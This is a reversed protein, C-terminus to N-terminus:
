LALAGLLFTYMREAEDVQDTLGKGQGHGEAEQLHMLIPMTGAQAHQLRAAFKASHLWTVRTDQEASTILTAPYTVGDLVQHYPSYAWLYPADKADDATGYEDVWLEAPPWRHFRVMDFLGVAAYSARFLHPVQTIMAGMLLGGNSGGAIALRQPTTYRQAVLFRMAYEMDRFVQHKNERRGAQHWAEGLEGGGRLNAVALVGGHEMWYVYRRSFGPTLSINFGGYGTLLVQASGNAVFGKPLVVFMPVPTGDYSRYTVQTVKYGALKLDSKAAAVTAARGPLRRTSQQLIVPPTLYNSWAFVVQDGDPEADTGGVSGLPPVALAGVAAGKANRFVLSSVARNLEETVMGRKVPLMAVLTQDGQAVLTHWHEKAPQDPHISVVRGRPADLNTLVVVRGGRMFAWEFTAAHGVALPTVKRSALDMLYLDSASWGRSVTIVLAKGDDSLSSGPWFTKDLDKGFLLPDAAPDTGLVHLYLRPSYREGPPFRRYVFAKDDKLWTLDCWRTDAITEAHHKGTDVDLIHLVSNEDGNRSLGYAVMRGNHSPHYWDLATKGAKDMAAVDLVTKQRGPATQVVLSPQEAKGERRRFFIRGSAVRPNSVDGVTLLTDLRKRLGPQKHADLWARTQATQERAFPLSTKPDELARYPDAVDVGGVSEVLNGPAPPAALLGLCLMWPGM